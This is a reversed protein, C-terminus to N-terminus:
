RLVGTIMDEVADPNLSKSKNVVISRGLVNSGLFSFQMRMSMIVHNGGGGSASALGVSRKNFLLRFNSSQVSVWAIFNSLVPPHSGNYEPACVIMGDCHLIRKMSSQIDEHNLHQKESEPTYMPLDLACLDMVDVEHGHIEAAAKLEMALKLNKGTSAALILLKAM